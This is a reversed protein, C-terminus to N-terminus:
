EVFRNRHEGVLPTVYHCPYRRIYREVISILKQTNNKIDDEMNGSIDLMLPPEIVIRHKYGEERLVFLPLVEAGTKIALKVPGSPFFARRGLFHVYVRNSDNGGDIAIAVIENNSLCKFVPRMSKFAYIFRVPLAKECEFRLQAVKSELPTLPRQLFDELDELPNGAIQNLPYGMYGLGLMLIQPNGFHPHLLLGGRGKKLANDLYCLGEVSIFSCFNRKNIRPYLLVDLDNKLKLEFYRKLVRAIKKDDEEQLLNKLTATAKKRKHMSLVYALRSMATAFGYLLTFPLYRALFRFPWWFFWIKLNRILSVLM